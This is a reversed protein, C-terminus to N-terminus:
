RLLLAKNTMLTEQDTLQILYVGSSVTEGNLNTGAWTIQYQGTEYYNDTLIDVLQGALNFIKISVRSRKNIKFNVTTRNNFPNPYNELLLFTQPLKKNDAFWVKTSRPVYKIQIDDVYWGAFAYENGDDSGFRFRLKVTKNKFQALDFTEEKWDYAGSFLQTGAPFAIMGAFEPIVYPYGDEPFIQEWDAGNTQSIEVIGGDYATGPIFLDTEAEMWNQFTFILMDATPLNIAPSTLTSNVNAPYSASLRTGWVRKGSFAKAPGTEPEGWQWISDSATFDGNSTELDTEFVFQYATLFYDVHTNENVNLTDELRLYRDNIISVTYSAAPLRIHFNGSTSDTYTVFNTDSSFELKASLPSNTERDRVTGEVVISSVPVLQVNLITPNGQFVYVSDVEKPRYDPASFRLKYIGPLLQRYYDGNNPDCYIKHNIGEVEVIAPLPEVTFSDSVIGQIGWNITEIYNIMAERNDEWFDPLSSASPWSIDSLEITVENTGMWVYNWDQMGGYIVYWDAGNSIGNSFYPSNWMPLNYRSYQKSIKIFLADDPCATYVSNSTANSDYPYNVVLAGTHFNAALVFSHDASFLMMARTEPERGSTTNNPDVIRDPFNRNLDVGHYNRRQRAIYGDPNMLPLIWIETHDVLRTIQNDTGYNELLYHILYLCMEMGVPENGHMSSIYNFEPETENLQVNDSIKVIWLDRGQVSLGVSTLLCIDRYKQELHQLEATLESYTHYTDLPNVSDKTFAWLSDAYIKSRDTIQQVNFGLNKLNNFEFDDVYAYAVRQSVVNSIDINLLILNSLKKSSLDSIKVLYEEIPTEASLNLFHFCLLILM